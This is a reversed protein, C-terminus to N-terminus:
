DNAKHYPVALTLMCLTLLYIAGIVDASIKGLFALRNNRMPLNCRIRTIYRM